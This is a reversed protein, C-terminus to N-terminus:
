EQAINAAKIVRAWRTTEAQIFQAFERPSTPAVQIVLDGLRQQIEPMRLVATLDAHVKELIPAPTGAPACLGYWSNVEFDPLASEHLTPVAPLQPIRKLSTVALPRVRGTQIASLV